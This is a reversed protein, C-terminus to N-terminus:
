TACGSTVLIRKTPAYPPQAEDPEGFVAAAAMRISGGAVACAGAGGWDATTEHPIRLLPRLYRNAGVLSFVAPAGAYYQLGTSTTGPLGGSGGATSTASTIVGGIGIETTLGVDRQVVTFLAHATSTASTQAWLGKDAIWDGTSYNAWTGGSASTHQLGVSLRVVMVNKNSSTNLDAFVTPVIAISNFNRPLGLRDITYGPWFESTGIASTAGDRACTLGAITCSIFAARHTFAPVVYLQSVDRTIM